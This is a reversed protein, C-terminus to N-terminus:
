KEKEGRALEALSKAYKKHADSTKAGKAVKDAAKAIAERQDKTREASSVYGRLEGWSSIDENSKHEPDAARELRKVIAAQVAEGEKECSKGLSGLASLADTWKDADEEIAKRLIPCFEEARSPAYGMLAYADQRLSSQPSAAFTGALDLAGKPPETNMGFWYLSAVMFSMARGDKAPDLKKLTAVVADAKDVSLADRQWIASGLAARVGPETEKEIAPLIVDFVKGVTPKAEVDSVGFYFDYLCASGMVRIAAVKDSIASLCGDLTAPTHNAEVYKKLQEEADCSQMLGEDSWKCTAGADLKARLEAPIPPPALASVSAAATNSRASAAATSSGRASSGSPTSTSTSTGQGKDGCAATLLTAGVM